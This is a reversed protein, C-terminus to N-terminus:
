RQNKKVSQRGGGTNRVNEANIEENMLEQRGKIVTKINLGLIESIMKDGGIGLKLSELGAYLRRQKEDLMSYFIIVAAKVEDMLVNPNLIRLRSKEYTEKRSLKQQTKITKDKSFYVYIGSVKERCIDKCKILKLLTENPMVKLLEEIEKATYGQESKKILAKITEALTGYSSFLVSNIFCLGKHNFRVIRRLTYYKGSHSCSSLYNLENLKRYITISSEAGIAKKLEEITAIKNSKLLEVIHGAHFSVPRM